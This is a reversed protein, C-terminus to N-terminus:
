RFVFLGTVALTPAGSSASFSCLAQFSQPGFVGSLTGQSQFITKKETNFVDSFCSHQSFIMKNKCVFDWLRPFGLFCTKIHRLSFAGALFLISKLLLLKLESSYVQFVRYVTRSYVSKSCPVADRKFFFANMALSTCSKRRKIHHM